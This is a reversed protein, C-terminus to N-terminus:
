VRVGGAYYALRHPVQPSKRHSNISSGRQALTAYFRTLPDRCLAATLSPAHAAMPRVIAGASVASVLGSLLGLRRPSNTFHDM